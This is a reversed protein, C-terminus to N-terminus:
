RWDEWEERRVAENEAEEGRQQDHIRELVLNGLNANIEGDLFLGTIDDGGATTVVDIDFSESSGPYDSTEPEARSYEGTVRLKVGELVVDITKM